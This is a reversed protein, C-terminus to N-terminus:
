HRLTRELWAAQMRQEPTGEKLILLMRKSEHYGINATLTEVEVTGGTWEEVLTRTEEPSLESQSLDVEGTDSEYSGVLVLDSIRVSRRATTPYKTEARGAASHIRDAWTALNVAGYINGEFDILIRTKDQFTGVIGSGAALDLLSGPRPIYVNHEM